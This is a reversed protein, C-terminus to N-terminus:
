SGNHRTAHTPLILGPEHRVVEEEAAELPAFKSVGCESVRNILSSTLWLIM